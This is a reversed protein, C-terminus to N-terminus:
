RGRVSECDRDAEAEEDKGVGGEEEVARVVSSRRGLIDRWGTRAFICTRFPGRSM